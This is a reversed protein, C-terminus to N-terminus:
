ARKYATGSCLCTALPLAGQGAQLANGGVDVSEYRVNCVANFGLARAEELMRATAERRSRQDLLVFNKAEGGFINRLGTAWSKFADSAIVAEGSVLAPTHPEPSLGLPQPLSSVTVGALAAERRSLSELHRRESAKGAFFGILIVALSTALAFLQDM